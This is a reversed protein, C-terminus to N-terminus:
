RELTFRAFTRCSVALSHALVLTADAVTESTRALSELERQRLRTSTRDWPTPLGRLDSPVLDTMLGDDGIQGTAMATSLDEHVQQRFKEDFDKRALTVEVNTDTGLAKVRKALDEYSLVLVMRVRLKGGIM